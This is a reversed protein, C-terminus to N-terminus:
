FVATSGVEMKKVPEAAEIYMDMELDDEAGEQVPALGERSRRSEHFRRKISKFGFKHKKRKKKDAIPHEEEAPACEVGADSVDVVAATQAISARAALMKAHQGSEVNYMHDAASYVPHSKDIPRILWERLVNKQLDNLDCSDSITIFCNENALHRLVTQCPFVMEEMKPHYIVRSMPPYISHPLNTYVLMIDAGVDAVADYLNDLQGEDGEDDLVKKGPCHTAVLVIKPVLLAGDKVDEPTRVQFSELAVPERLLEAIKGKVDRIAKQNLGAVCVSQRVEYFSKDVHSMGRQHELNEHRHRPLSQDEEYLVKVMSELNAGFDSYDMM